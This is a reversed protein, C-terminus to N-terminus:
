AADGEAGQRFDFGVMYVTQPRGRTAAVVRAVQLATLFLLDEIVIEDSLLRQIMLDSTEQTLRAHPARAVKAKGGPNFDTSTLYLRSRTGNDTIARKVWDAQFVSVDCPYIREADNLGIVLSGAYVEAPIEDASPGKGLIFITDTGYTSAIASIQSSFAEM